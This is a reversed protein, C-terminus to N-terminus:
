VKIGNALSILILCQVLYWLMNLLGFTRRLGGDAGQTLRPVDMQLSAESGAAQSWPKQMADQSRSILPM